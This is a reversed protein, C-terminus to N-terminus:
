FRVKENHYENEFMDLFIEDATGQPWLDLEFTM